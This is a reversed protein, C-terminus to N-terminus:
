PKTNLHKKASMMFAPNVKATVTGGEPVNDWNICNKKDTRIGNGMSVMTFEYPTGAYMTTSRSSDKTFQVTM